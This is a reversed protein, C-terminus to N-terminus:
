VPARGEAPVVARRASLLFAGDPASLLVRHVLIFVDGQVGSAAEEGAGPLMPFEDVFVGGLAPPVHTEKGRREGAVAPDANHVQDKLPLHLRGRLIRSFNKFHQMLLKLVNSYGTISLDDRPSM